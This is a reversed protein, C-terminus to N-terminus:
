EESPLEPAIPEAPSEAEPAEQPKPKEPKVRRLTFVFELGGGHRNRVTISGGM